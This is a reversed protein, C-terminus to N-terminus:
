RGEGGMAEWAKLAAAARALAETSCRGIDVQREETGTEWMLSAAYVFSGNPPDTAPVCEVDFWCGPPMLVKAASEYAGVSLMQWANLFCTDDLCREMMALGVAMKLLEAEREPGASEMEAILASVSTM